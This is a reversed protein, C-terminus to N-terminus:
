PKYDLKLEPAQKVIQDWATDRNNGSAFAHQSWFKPHRVYLGSDLKDWLQNYADTMKSLHERVGEERHAPDLYRQTLNDHTNQFFDFSKYDSDDDVRWRNIQDEGGDRRQVWFHSPHFAPFGHWKRGNTNSPFVFRHTEDREDFSPDKLITAKYGKFFVDPDEQKLAAQINPLASLRYQLEQVEPLRDFHVAKGTERNQVRDEVQHVDEREPTNEDLLPIEDFAYRPKVEVRQNEHTNFVPEPIREEPNVTRGHLGHRTIASISPHSSVFKRTLDTDVPLDYRVADVAGQPETEVRRYDIPFYNVRNAM